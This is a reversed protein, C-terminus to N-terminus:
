GKWALDNHSHETVIERSKKVARILRDKGKEMLIKKANKISDRQKGRGFEGIKFGTSLEIIFYDYWEDGVAIYFAHGFMDFAHRGISRVYGYRTFRFVPFWKMYDPETQIKTM